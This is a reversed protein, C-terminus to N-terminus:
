TKVAHFRYFKMGAQIAALRHIWAEVEALIAKKTEGDAPPSNRLAAVFRNIGNVLEKRYYPTQDESVKLEFGVKAWQEAMEILGLPKALLEQAQWGVIGPKTRDEPNVIYDTFVVSGGIKIGASISYFFKPQEPTRYFLERAIMCDYIAPMSFAAPDYYEIPAIKAKGQKTSIEMGRAAIEADTDVGKMQAVQGAIKRMPGGLGATLDIVNKTNNLAVPAVLMTMLEDGAPLIQEPGWMKEALEGAEAHWLRVSAAPAVPAVPTAAVVPKKPAPPPPAVQAQREVPIPKLINPLKFVHGALKFEIIPFECSADNWFDEFIGSAKQAFRPGAYREIFAYIPNAM